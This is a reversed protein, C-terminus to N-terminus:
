AWGLCRYILLGIIEKIAVSSRSFAVRDLQFESLAYLQDEYTGGTAAPTVPVGVKRFAAIARPMHVSSTVLLANRWPYNRFIAETDVADERTSLSETELILACPPVGLAILRDGIEKAYPGSSIVMLRAKGARYIALAHTIRNEPNDLDHLGAGGLLIVVDSQPLMEVKIAPFESELRWNIWKAFAPTAVIWLSMCAFGILALGSRLWGAVVFALAAVSVFATTALPLTSLPLTKTLVFIDSLQM